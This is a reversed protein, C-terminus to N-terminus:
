ADGIVGSRETIVLRSDDISALVTTHDQVRVRRGAALGRGPVRVEIEVTGPSVECDFAACRDIQRRLRVHERDFVIRGDVSVVVRDDEFGRKMIVTLVAM